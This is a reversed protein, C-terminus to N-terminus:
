VPFDTPHYYGCIRDPDNAVSDAAAKALSFRKEIDPERDAEAFVGFRLHVKEATEKEVFLNNNFKMILQEYDDRHPCYLLFTDSDQRCGIGGTKTALKRINIGIDRLVLDGFQRGYQENVSHFHKIDCVFADLSTGENQQDFRDVYRIFYDFHLLGTLRDRQTHRILDRNESLEICKAIRAKVINIDPYPKSIFDMAGLKLSDLEADPDITLMVVPISMLEEDVQMERLVDRGNMNPMYLDLLLLAIKDKYKRLMEMTEVGDSALLIDYDDELLGGLIKRNIEQDDAILIHKRINILPIDESDQSSRIAEDDRTAAGLSKLLMKNKYMVTDAREFIDRLCRDQQPDYDALGCSVIPDDTGIHVTSLNHLEQILDARYQHDRGALLAVFEDGGIRYVPSHSFVDCIMKCSQCLYVDGAQHGRTDNIMKLGNVDFVVVAFPSAEGQEIEKNIREEDVSFAHKSKVGTLSDRNAIKRMQEYKQIRPLNAEINSVAVVIHHDDIQKMKTIKVLVHVPTRDIVVRFSLLPLHDAALAQLLNKKDIAQLFIDKDEEFIVRAFDDRCMEFFDDGAPTFNLSKYLDSSSYEIFENTRTDVYFICDYDSTLADSIVAFTLHSSMAREYIAMRQMHADMNSLAFLVHTPDDKRLRTAKLKVYTPKGDIVTRYNLIFSDDVSLVNLINQKTVATHFTDLDPAYVSEEFSRLIDYFDKGITRIDLKEDQEHPIFEAFVNTDTNVCFVRSFDRSIARAIDSYKLDNIFQETNRM